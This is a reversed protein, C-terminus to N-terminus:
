TVRHTSESVDSGTSILWDIALSDKLGYGPLKDGNPVEAAVPLRVETGPILAVIASGRICGPYKATFDQHPHQDEGGDTSKLYSLTKAKWKSSYYSAHEGIQHRILRLAASRRDIRSQMRHEDEEGGAHKFVNIYPRSAAEALAAKLVSAELGLRLVVFGNKLLGYEPM